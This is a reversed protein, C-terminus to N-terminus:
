KVENSVHRSLTSFKSLKLDPVSPWQSSECVEPESLISKIKENVIEDDSDCTSHLYNNLYEESMEMLIEAEDLEKVKKSMNVKGMLKNYSKISKTASEVSEGCKATVLSTTQKTQIANMQGSFGFMKRKLSRIKSLQQALPRCAFMKGERAMKKLENELQREENELQTINDQISKQISDRDKQGKKHAKELKGSVTNSM